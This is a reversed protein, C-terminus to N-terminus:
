EENGIPLRFIVETGKGIESKLEIKGNLKDVADRVIYLGLGSGSDDLTERYFMKFVEDLKDKEIGVGDIRNKCRNRIIIANHRRRRGRETRRRVRM